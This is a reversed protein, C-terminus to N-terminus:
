CIYRLHDVYESILQDVNKPPPAPDTLIDSM